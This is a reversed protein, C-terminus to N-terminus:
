CARTNQFNIVWEDNQRFKKIAIKQFKSKLWSKGLKGKMVLRFVHGKGIEIAKEKLVIKGSIRNFQGFHMHDKSPGGFACTLCSLVVIFFVALAAISKGKFNVLSTLMTSFLQQAREM